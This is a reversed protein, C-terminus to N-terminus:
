SDGLRVGGVFEGIVRGAEHPARQLVLHPADLVCTEADARWRKVDEMAKTGLLRDRAGALYLLPVRSGALEAGVDVAAIERLRAALVGADVEALAARLARVDDDTADGGLLGFRLAADPPRVAFVSRAVRAPVWRAAAPAKAFSAVLVLARVRELHRAALRIGIPGSFSEAVIAFSGDPVVVEDVLQDYTRPERTPYAVVVPEIRADLHALLPGFLRGTGDM